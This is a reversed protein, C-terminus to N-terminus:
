TFFFTLSAQYLFFAGALLILVSSAKHVKKMWMGSRPLRGMQLLGLGLVLFLSSAGLAYLFMLFIGSLFEGGTAITVLVTGLVPTTCPSAMLTATFGMTFAFVFRNKKLNGDQSSNLKSTVTKFFSPVYNFFSFLSFVVLLLGVGLQMFPNQSSFGFVEGFSVAVFGLSTFALVQGFFFLLVSSKSRGSESGFFGLSIPIMPYVCPSLSTLLGAGLTLGMKYLFAETLIM